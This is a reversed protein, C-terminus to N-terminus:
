IRSEKFSKKFTILVWLIAGFTIAIDAINFYAPFHITGVHLDIFDIVYGRFLRDLLNGLAGGLILSLACAEFKETRPAQYLWRIIVISITLAILVFLWRQWGGATGLFSFAAGMNHTLVINVMPMVPGPELYLPQLLLFKTAQDLMVIFISLWLWHLQVHKAM